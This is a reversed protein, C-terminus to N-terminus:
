KDGKGRRGAEYARQASALRFYPAIKPANKQQEIFEKNLRAKIEQIEEPTYEKPDKM